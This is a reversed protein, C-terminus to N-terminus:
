RIFGSRDKDMELFAEELTRTKAFIQSRIDELLTNMLNVQWCCLVVRCLVIGLWLM